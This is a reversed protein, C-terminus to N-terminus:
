DATEARKAAAAAPTTPPREIRGFQAAADALASPVSRVMRRPPEVPWRQAYDNVTRAHITKGRDPSEYIVAM